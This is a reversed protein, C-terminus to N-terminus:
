ILSTFFGGVNPNNLDGFGAANPDEAFGFVPFGETAMLFDIQVGGPKAANLAAKIENISGIPSTGSAILRVGAPFEDFYEVLQAQTLIRYIKILDEPTGNSVHQAIKAILRLRYQEDNLPGRRQGLIKGLLDLQAGQADDLYRNELLDFFVAELTQLPEVFAKILSEVRDKGRYQEPLRDLAQEEHDDIREISM